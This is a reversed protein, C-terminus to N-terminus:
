YAQCGEIEGDNFEGKRICNSAAREVMSLTPLYCTGDAGTQSIWKVLGTRWAWLVAGRPRGNASEDSYDDNWNFFRGSWNSEERLQIMLEPAEEMIAEFRMASATMCKRGLETGASYSFTPSHGGEWRQWFETGGLSFGSSVSPRHYDPAPVAPDIFIAGAHVDLAPAFPDEFEPTQEVGEWFDNVFEFRQHIKGGDREGKIEVRLRAWDEPLEELAIPTSIFEGYGEEDVVLEDAGELLLEPEELVGSEEMVPEEGEVPEEGMGPEEGEVPEPMDVVRELLYVELNVTHGRELSDLRAEIVPGAFHLPAIETEPDVEGSQMGLTEVIRYSSSFLVADPDDCKGGCAESVGVEPYDTANEATPEEDGTNPAPDENVCGSAITLAFACSVCFLVRNTMVEYEKFFM